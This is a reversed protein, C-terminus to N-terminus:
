KTRQRAWEVNEQITEVTRTPTRVQTFGRVGATVAVGAIGALVVGVILAAAWSPMVLSLAYVAAFLLFFISFTAGVTGTALLVAATKAKVVEEKFETKALRVESRVIEQVNRVIDQLITSLSRDGPPMM